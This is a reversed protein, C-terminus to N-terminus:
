EAGSEPQQDAQQAAQDMSQQGALQQQAMAHEQQSQQLEMARQHDVHDSAVDHAMNAMNELQRLDMDAQDVGAKIEASRIQAIASIAATEIKTQSEVQKTEIKKQLEQVVAMLQKNQEAQAQMQSKLQEPTENGSEVGGPLMDAMQEIIPNGEGALRVLRAVFGPFQALGPTIKLLETLMQVAEDRRTLFSGGATVRLSYKGLAISNKKQEPTTGDPFEKNIEMLEHAGDPRVITRVRAGDYIKPFILAMEGYMLAVANQMAVQWNITGINTQAQLAKIAAGSQANQASQVSPEFFVSTAAKISESFFNALELMRVIPAEWNNRVPPPLLTAPGTGDPPASYVPNLELYPQVESNSVDWPSPRQGTPSDFQGMWGIWPTRTMTGATECASTAAYNLGRQPDIAGSILSLRHLKGKIYIQPGLIWFIPILSGYWETKDIVDLATVVYKMIKRRPVMRGIVKGNEDRKPTVNIPIAEDDYRYILDSYLTLQVPEIVVRFFECVYYPGDSSYGGTWEGIGVNPGRWGVTQEVADQMWGAVGQFRNRNLVKLDKSGFKEIMQMRSFVRIKGGWMADKMCWERANPDTFVMSPDEIGKVILQQEMSHDSVYETALEFCGRGGATAYQLGQIYAQSANSRYEVERILGELIDAGDKDAGDGVPHAKPGPPNNIAENIVQDCAPKCRNVTIVPRNNSRRRAVEGERWQKEGGLWFGLSEEESRRLQETADRYEDWCMRAYQPIDEDRIKTPDKAM